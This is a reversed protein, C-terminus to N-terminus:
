KKKAPASARARRQRALARAEGVAHALHRPNKAVDILTDGIRFRASARFRDAEATRVIQPSMRRRAKWRQLELNRAPDSGANKALLQTLLAMGRPSGLEAAAYAWDLVEDDSAAGLHGSRLVEAARLCATPNGNEGYDKLRKLEDASTVDRPTWNEERSAQMAERNARRVRSRSHVYESSRSPDISPEAALEVDVPYDFGKLFDAFIKNYYRLDSPLFWNVFDGSRGSRAIHGYRSSGSITENVVPYGLYDSLEDTDSVAFQEYRMVYSPHKRLFREQKGALEAIKVVPPRGIGLKKSQKCLERVSLSSPDAEKRRLLEVFKDVDAQTTRSVAANTMPKFLMFSILLDRPDRVTMVRKGFMAANGVANDLHGTLAKVLLPRHPAGLVVSDVRDQSSPEFLTWPHAGARRLGVGIASFM